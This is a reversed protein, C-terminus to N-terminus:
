TTRLPAPSSSRTWLVSLSRQRQGASSNVRALGDGHGDHALDLLLGADVDLDVVQDAHVGVRAVDHRVVVTLHPLLEREAETGMRHAALESGAALGLLNREDWRVAQVLQVDMRGHPEPDVM